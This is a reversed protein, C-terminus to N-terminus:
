PVNNINTGLVIGDMKLEDLARGLEAMAHDLNTLPISALSLFRQPHRKAVDAIFDNTARGTDQKVRRGFFLRKSCLPGARSM